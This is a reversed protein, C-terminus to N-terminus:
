RGGGKAWLEEVFERVADRTEGRADPLRIVAVVVDDEFEQRSVVECTDEKIDELNCYGFKTKANM